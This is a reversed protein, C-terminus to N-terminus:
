DVFNGKQDGPMNKFQIQTTCLHDPFPGSLRKNASSYLIGCLGGSEGVLKLAEKFSHISDLAGPLPFLVLILGSSAVQDDLPVSNERFQHRTLIPLFSGILDLLCIHTHRM